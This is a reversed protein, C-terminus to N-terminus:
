ATTDGATAYQFTHNNSNPINPTSRRIWLGKVYGSPIDGLLIGTSRTTPASFVVGVPAVGKSTITLGQPSGSALPSAATPDAGLQTVAGDATEGIIYVSVLLYTNTLNANYVFVEQFDPNGALNEDGSVDPFVNNAVADTITGTTCFGGLNTGSGANAVSNGSSASSNSGKSLIDGVIIAM